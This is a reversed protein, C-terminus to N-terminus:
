RTKMWIVWIVFSAAHRMSTELRLSFSPLMSRNLLVSEQVSNNCKKWAVILNGMFPFALWLFNLWKQMDGKNKRRAM